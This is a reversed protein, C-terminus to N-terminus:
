PGVGYFGCLLYADWDALVSFGWMLVCRAREMVVAEEVGFGPCLLLEQM